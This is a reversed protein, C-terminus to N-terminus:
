GNGERGLNRLEHALKSTLARVIVSLKTESLGDSNDDIVAIKSWTLSKEPKTPKRMPACYSASYLHIQMDVGFPVLLVAAVQQFHARGLTFIHANGAELLDGGNCKPKNSEEMMAFPVATQSSQAGQECLVNLEIQIRQSVKQLIPAYKQRLNGLQVQRNKSRVAQDFHGFQEVIDLREVPSSDAFSALEDTFEDLTQFRKGIRYAFARDFFWALREGQEVTEASDLLIQQHRQHPALEEADRLVIPPKGTLCSFFIGALATIDSRLERHGGELDQCEPLIIFENWFMEGERTLIVTQRSDFAIGFDLVYPSGVEGNKLIINAPKLDRHGIKHQHCLSITKAIGRTVLVAKAPAVPAFTKLWEDFRVGKIFEMLLFPETADHNLSSDYVEPVHAGLKHLKSLTEAEQQLRQHAQIDERWRPVIRKLVARRASDTKHHLETIIGQGGRDIEDHEIWDDLWPTVNDKM